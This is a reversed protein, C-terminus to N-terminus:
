REQITKILPLIHNLHDVWIRLESILQHIRRAAQLESRISKIRMIEARIRPKNGLYISSGDRCKLYPYYYKRGIKNKVWTVEISCNKYMDLYRLAGSVRKDLERLVHVALKVLEEDSLDQLKVLRPRAM